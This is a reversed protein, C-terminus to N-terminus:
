KNNVISILKETEKPTAGCCTGLVSPNSGIIDNIFYEFTEDVSVSKWGTKNNNEGFNPYVGWKKVGLTLIKNIARKSAQISSCNLLFVDSKDKFYSVIQAWSENSLINGNENCTFSVFVPIDPYEATAEYIVKSERFTNITEILFIDIEGEALYQTMKSHEKKLVNNNPVLHPSYCDELPAISGAIYIKKSYNVNSRAQRAIEIAKLTLEQANVTKFGANKLTRDQTRFTNTTIIDSGARIFDEHIERVLDPEELLSQASWLPLMTNSGRRDLETGMGGDLIFIRDNLNM